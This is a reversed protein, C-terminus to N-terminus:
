VIMQAEEWEGVTTEVWLSGVGNHEYHEYHLPTPIPALSLTIVSEFSFDIQLFVCPFFKYVETSPFVSQPM